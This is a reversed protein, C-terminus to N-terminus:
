ASGQGVLRQQWEWASSIIDELSREARWGLDRAAARPDAWVAAPDGPRRPATIRPVPLGIVREATDLLQAVSVGEGTGLNYVREGPSECVLTVAQAHARALDEVHVYDRIATGDPTPYDTGYISVAADIGAIARMVRPLLNTPERAEDGISGDAAAGAANFYRLSVTEFGHCVAYWHLAAEVMAKGAGYPNDPVIQAQEDVPVSRPTGYVAASSSFVMRRVGRALMAELLTLSGAVNHLLHRGPAAMSAEVSKEAALHLVVEIEHDRLVRDVLPGDAIDGTISTAGATAADDSRRDLTVVRHGM